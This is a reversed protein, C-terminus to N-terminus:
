QVATSLAAPAFAAQGSVDDRVNKTTGQGYEHFTWGERGRGILVWGGGDDDMECYFQEPRQMTQTRLWYIGDASSPHRQKIEWCSAAANASSTGSLSSTTTASAPQTAGGVSVLVSLLGALAICRAIWRTRLNATASKAM